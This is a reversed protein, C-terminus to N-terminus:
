LCVSVLRSDMGSQFGTCMDNNSRKAGSVICQTEFFTGV